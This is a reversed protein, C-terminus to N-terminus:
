YLTGLDLLIILETSCDELSFGGRGGGGYVASDEEFKSSDKGEYSRAIFLSEYISIIIM